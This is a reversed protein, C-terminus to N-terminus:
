AFRDEYWAATRELGDALTTRPRWDLQETAKTADVRQHDIHGEATGEVVPELDTRGLTEGIRSVLELVSTGDGTGFNYAEGAASESQEGLTRYARIADEVFLYDRTPTGDSRIVPADGDLYSRITGPVIRSFNLDGPGYINSFRTVTVPVDYTAYYTRAIRDTALKSVSYPREARLETAETYPMEEAPGYAKDSSAVIVGDVTGDDERVADLVNWTGEVNTEFARTPRKEAEGVLSEAALHYVLDFDHEAFVSRVADRDAVDVLELRAGDGLDVDREAPFPEVDVGVVVAGRSRLDSLLHGGVFGSAGTVLVTRDQWYSM